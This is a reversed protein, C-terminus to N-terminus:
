NAKEACLIGQWPLQVHVHKFVTGVANGKDYWVGVGGCRGKLHMICRWVSPRCFQVHAKIGLLIAVEEKSCMKGTVSQM